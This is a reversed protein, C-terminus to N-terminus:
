GSPKGSKRATLCYLDGTWFRQTPPMGWLNGHAGRYRTNASARSLLANHSAKSGHPFLARRKVALF